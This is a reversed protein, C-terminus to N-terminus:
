NSLAIAAIAGSYCCFMSMLLLWTLPSAGEFERFFLVGWLAAVMPAAQAISYAVAPSGVADGAVFNLMTGTVWVLAAVMPAAVDRCSGGRVAAAISPVKAGSLPFRALLGCIPVSSAMAALTFYFSCTYPILAEAPDSYFSKEQALTELPPFGGIVLGSLLSLLLITRLSLRAPKETDVVANVLQAELSSSSTTPEVVPPQLRRTRREKLVQAGTMSVLALLALSLGLCLLGLETHGPETFYSLLTGVVLATGICLPFATTLGDLQILLTLTVNGINFLVGSLCAFLVSLGCASQLNKMFDNHEEDTSYLDSGLLLGLLTAGVFYGVSFLIYFAPFSLTSYKAFVGWSGWCFMNVVLLALALGSTHVIFM